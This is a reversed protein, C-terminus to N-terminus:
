RSALRRLETQYLGRSNVPHDGTRIRVVASGRSTSGSHRESPKSWLDNLDPRTERCITLLDDLSTHRLVEIVVDRYSHLENRHRQIVSPYLWLECAMWREVYGRALSRVRKAIQKRFADKALALLLPGEEDDGDMPPGSHHSALYVRPRSGPMTPEGIAGDMPPPSKSIRPM